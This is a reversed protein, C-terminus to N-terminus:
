RAGVMTPSPVGLESEVVAAARLTLADDFHGGIFQASVPLSQGDLGSPVAVAPHGTLNLPATNATMTTAEKLLEFDGVPPKALLRASHPTTPTLLLDRDALAAEVQQRLALRLNQVKGLYTGYYYDNIYRGVLLWVKFFPPFEDAELRRTLAFAHARPVDVWGLHGFGVGESQAMAWGLMCLTAVEIAWADSWMPISVSTIKAGADAVARRARELGELVGPECLSEAASEEIIGIRLGSVGQELQDLCHTPEAKARVWQPDRWDHGSMVDTATAVLRVSRAVPCIYDITHDIHMTGQSPILGHTAKLSVVGCFSAPIRASGGQDVGIALDVLSAAVAAGSGSSSGGASRKTDFPNRAPGYFSHEGTGAAAFDDMNLKGVIRAGAGLLREVVVADQTPVTAATRSANSTPVGAVSVNDKVGLRVGALPGDSAGPVDCFRIFANYPDEDPSPVRGPDRNRYHVEVDPQHLEDLRDFLSLVGDIAQAYNGAEEASLHLFEKRAFEAVQEPTPRRIFGRLRGTPRSM